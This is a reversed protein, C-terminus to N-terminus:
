VSLRDTRKDYLVVKPMIGNQLHTIWLEVIVNLGTNGLYFEKASVSQTLQGRYIM